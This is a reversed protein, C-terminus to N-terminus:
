PKRVTTNTMRYPAAVLQGSQAALGFSGMNDFSTNLTDEKYIGYAEYYVDSTGAYAKEWGWTSSLVNSASGMACYHHQSLILSKTLVFATKPPLGRSEQQLIKARRKQEEQPIGSWALGGGEQMHEEDRPDSPTGYKYGASQFVTGAPVEIPGDAMVGSFDQENGSYHKLCVELSSAHAWQSLLILQAFAAVIVKM